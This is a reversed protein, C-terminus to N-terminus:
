VLDLFRDIMVLGGMSTLIKICFHEVICKLKKKLSVAFLDNMRHNNYLLFTM